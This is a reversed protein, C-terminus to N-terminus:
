SANSLSRIVASSNSVSIVREDVADGFTEGAPGASCAVM